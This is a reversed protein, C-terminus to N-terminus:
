MASAVRGSPRSEFSVQLKQEARRGKEAQHEKRQKGGSLQPGLPEGVLNIVQGVIHRNQHSITENRDEHDANNAAHNGASNDRVPRTVMEFEGKM